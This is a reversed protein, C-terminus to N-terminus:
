SFSFRFDCLDIGPVGSAGIQGSFVECRADTSANIEIPHGSGICPWERDKCGTLEPDIAAKM